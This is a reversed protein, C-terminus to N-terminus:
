GRILSRITWTIGFIKADLVRGDCGSWGCIVM